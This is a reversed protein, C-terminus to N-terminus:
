QGTTQVEVLEVDFLLTANPPIPGNRVSGYGLSPPIVLRRLGGVRMGQLGRDWGAIVQGIGLTFTFPAGGVSSDFQPGKQTPESADYLWGTYHVVLGAGPTAESGTGVRVDTQSFPANNSPSTPSDGCGAAAACLALLLAPVLRRRTGARYERIGQVLTM